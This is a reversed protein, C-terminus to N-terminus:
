RALAACDLMVRVAAIRWEGAERKMVLVVPVRRVMVVSGYQTNAADVLAVDPTIFRIRQSVIRPATTESWPEDHMQALRDFDRFDVNHTFAKRADPGNLTAIVKDIAARDAPEDARV